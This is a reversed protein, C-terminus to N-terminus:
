REPTLLRALVKPPEFSRKRMFREFGRYYGRHFGGKRVIFRM